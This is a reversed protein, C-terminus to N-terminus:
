WKHNCCQLHFIKLVFISQVSDTLDLIPRSMYYYTIWQRNFSLINKYNNNYKSSIDIYYVALSSGETPLNLPPLSARRLIDSVTDRLYPFPIAACNIRVIKDLSKISENIDINPFVFLGGMEINLAIPQIPTSMGSLLEEVIQRKLEVTFYERYKM